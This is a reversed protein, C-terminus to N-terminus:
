NRKKEIKNQELHFANNKGTYLEFFGQKKIGNRDIKHKM